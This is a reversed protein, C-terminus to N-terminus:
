KQERWARIKEALSEKSLQDGWDAQRLRASSIGFRGFRIPVSDVLREKRFQTGPAIANGRQRQDSVAEYVNLRIGRKTTVIEERQKVAYTLHFGWPRTSESHRTALSIAAPRLEKSEHIERLAGMTEGWKQQAVAEQQDGAVKKAAWKPPPAALQTASAPTAFLLLSGLVLRRM